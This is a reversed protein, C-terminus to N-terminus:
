LDITVIRLNIRQHRDKGRLAHARVARSRSFVSM